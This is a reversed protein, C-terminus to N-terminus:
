LTILTKAATTVLKNFALISGLPKSISQPITYFCDNFSLVCQIFRFEVLEFEEIFIVEEKVFVLLM